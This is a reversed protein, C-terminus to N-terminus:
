PVRPGGAPARAPAPQQRPALCRRPRLGPRLRQARAAARPGPTAGRRRARSTSASSARCGGSSPRSTGHRLHLDRLDAALDALALAMAARQAREAEALDAAGGLVLLGGHEVAHQALNTM